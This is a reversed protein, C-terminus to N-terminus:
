FLSEILQQCLRSFGLSRFSFGMSYRASITVVTGSPVLGALTSSNRASSAIRVAVNYADKLGVEWRQRGVM